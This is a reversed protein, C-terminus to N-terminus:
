CEKQASLYIEKKKRMMFLLFCSHILGHFKKRIDLIGFPKRVMRLLIHFININKEGACQVIGEDNMLPFLYSVIGNLSFSYSFVGKDLLEDPLTDFDTTKKSFSVAHYSFSDHDLSLFMSEQESRFETFSLATSLSFLSFVITILLLVSYLTTSQFFAKIPITKTKTIRRVSKPKDESESKSFVIIKGQQNFDVIVNSVLADHELEHLALFM